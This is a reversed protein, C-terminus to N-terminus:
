HHARECNTSVRDRSDALVRDIGSGCDVVDRYGDVTDVYDNGPGASVTDRGPGPYVQDDGPGASVSDPGAMSRLTDNGDLSCIVDRRPTGRLADDQRTGLISCSYVRASLVAKNDGRIPDPENAIGEVSASVPGVGLARLRARILVTGDVPLRDIVCEFQRGSLDCSGPGANRSISLPRARGALKGVIRVNTATMEGLNSVRVQYTFLRGLRV